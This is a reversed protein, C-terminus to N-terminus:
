RRESPMMRGGSSFSGLMSKEEVSVSLPIKEEVEVGTPESESESMSGLGSGEVWHGSSWWFILAVMASSPPFTTGLSLQDAGLSAVKMFAVFLMSHWVALSM